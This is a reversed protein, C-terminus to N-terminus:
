RPTRRNPQSHFRYSANPPTCKMMVSEGMKQDEEEELGEEEELAAIRSRVSEYMTVPDPPPEVTKKKGSARGNQAPPQPVNNGNSPASKSAQATPKAPSLSGGGSSMVVKCPKAKGVYGFLYSIVPLVRQILTYKICRFSSGSGSWAHM